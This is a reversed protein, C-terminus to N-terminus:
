ASGVVQEPYSQTEMLESETITVEKTIKESGIHFELEGVHYTDEPLPVEGMNKLEDLGEQIWLLLQSVSQPNVTIEFMRLCKVLNYAVTPMIRTATFIASALVTCTLDDKAQRRSELEPTIGKTLEMTYMLKETLKQFNEIDQPLVDMNDMPDIYKWMAPLTIYFSKGKMRHNVIMMSPQYVENEGDLVKIHHYEKKLGGLYNLM